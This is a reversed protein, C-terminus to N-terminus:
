CYNYLINGDNDGLLILRKDQSCGNNDNIIIMDNIKKRQILNINKNELVEITNNKQIYEKKIIYRKLKIEEINKGENDKTEVIYCYANNENLIETKMAIINDCTFNYIIHNKLYDYIFFGKGPYSISAYNDFLKQILIKENEKENNINLDKAFLSIIQNQNIKMVLLWIKNKNKNQYKQAVLIIYGSSLKNIYNVKYGDIKYLNKKGNEYFHIINQNNLSLIVDKSISACSIIPKIENSYNDSFIIQIDKNILKFKVLQDESCSLIAGDECLEMHIFPKDFYKSLPLIELSNLDNRNMNKVRQIEGLILVNEQSFLSILIKNDGLHLMSIISNSLTKLIKFDNNNEKSLDINRNLNFIRNLERNIMENSMMFTKRKNKTAKFTSISGGYNTKRKERKNFLENKKNNNKNNKNQEIKTKNNGININNGLNNNNINPKKSEKIVSKSYYRTNFQNQEFNNSNRNKTMNNNKDNNEKYNYNLNINNILNDIKNLEDASIGYNRDSTIINSYKYVMYNHSNSEYIDFLIKKLTLLDENNKKIKKFRQNMNNLIEYYFNQEKILNENEEKCIKKLKDIENKNKVEEIINKIKHNENEHEEKKCENCIHKNCNLCFYKNKENKHKRCYKGLDKIYLYDLANITNKNKLKEFCEICFFYKYNYSILMEKTEFSKCCYNCTKKNNNKMTLEFEEVSIENLGCNECNMIINNNNQNMSFDIGIYYCCKPCRIEYNNENNNEYITDKM